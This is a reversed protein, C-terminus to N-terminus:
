IGPSGTKDFALAEYIAAISLGEPNYYVVKLEVTSTSSPFAFASLKRGV